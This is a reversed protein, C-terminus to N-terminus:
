RYYCLTLKLAETQSTEYTTILPQWKNTVVTIVLQQQKVAEAKWFAAFKGEGM